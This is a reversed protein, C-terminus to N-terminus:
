TVMQMCNDSNNSSDDDKNSSYNCDGNDGENNVSLLM